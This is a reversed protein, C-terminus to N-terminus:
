ERIILVRGLPQKSPSMCRGLNEVILFAKLTVALYLLEKSQKYVVVILSPRDLQQLVQHQTLTVLLKGGVTFQHKNSHCESLPQPAPPSKLLDQGM